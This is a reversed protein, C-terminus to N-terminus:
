SASHVQTVKPSRLHNSQVTHGPSLLKSAQFAVADFSSPWCYIRYFHGTLSFCSGRLLACSHAHIHRRFSLAFCDMTKGLCRQGPLAVSHRGIGQPRDRSALANSNFLRVRCVIVRNRYRNFARINGPFLDALTEGEKRVEITKTRAGYRELYNVIWTTVRATILWNSVELCASSSCTETSTSKGSTSISVRGEGAM